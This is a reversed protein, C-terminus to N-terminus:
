IVDTDGYAIKWNHPFKFLSDFDPNDLVRGIMVFGSPSIRRFGSNGFVTEFFGSDFGFFEIKQAETASYHAITYLLTLESQEIDETRSILDCISIMEGGKKCVSICVPDGDLQMIHFEYDNHPHEGYRWRLYPLDKWVSIVEHKMAERLMADLTEPLEDTTIFSIKRSHLSSYLRKRFWLRSKRLLKSFFKFIRDLVAGTIKRYGMRYNYEDLNAINRWGLKQIFIPYSNQNPFGIIATLGESAARDRNHNVLGAFLGKGRHDRHIYGDCLEGAAIESGFLNLHSRMTSCEGIIENRYEALYLWGAGHPYNYYQWHIHEGTKVTGFIDMFIRSIKEEDGDRYGRILVDARTM